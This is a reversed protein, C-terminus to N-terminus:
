YASYVIRKSILLNLICYKTTSTRRLEPNSKVRRTSCVTHAMSHSCHRTYAINKHIGKISERRKKSRQLAEKSILSDEGREEM